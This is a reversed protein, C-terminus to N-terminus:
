IEICYTTSTYTNGITYCTLLRDYMGFAVEKAVRLKEDRTLKYLVKKLDTDMLETILYLQNKSTSVVIGLFKVINPHKLM